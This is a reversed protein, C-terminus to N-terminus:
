LRNESKIPHVVPHTMNMTSVFFGGCLEKAECRNCDEHYTTKYGSISKSSLAWYDKDIACLPYNYLGVNYGASVLHNIATKSKLFSNRHDIYVSELNRACNGMTELSIFNVCSINPFKSIIMDAIGTLNNCNTKTVVIRLEIEIDTNMLRYIASITQNFSGQARTIYDHLEPNDGHIPIAIRLHNPRQANMKDFFQKNSLSRGNTLILVQTQPYKEKLTGLVILFLTTQLTPEGGTIVVHDVEAPLYDIYKMLHEESYSFGRRREMDSAPCMICNSNCKAGLFITADSDNNSFSLYIVGNDNIEVIDYDCLKKFREINIDSTPYLIEGPQIVINKDTVHFVDVNRKMLDSYTEETRAVIMLRNGHSYNPLYLNM